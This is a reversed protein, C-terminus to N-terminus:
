LLCPSLFFLCFLSSSLNNRKREKKGEEDKNKGANLFLITDFFLFLFHAIGGVERGCILQSHALSTVFERYMYEDHGWAFKLNDLGCHPEYMGYKTNYKPNHM